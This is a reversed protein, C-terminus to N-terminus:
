APVLGEPEQYMVALGEAVMASQILPKADAVKKGAHEGVILKGDYFGVKYVEEQVCMILPATSILAYRAKAEALAISDNQSKIKYKDCAFIASLNGMGPAEIIPVPEVAVMADTINYLDRLPQFLILPARSINTQLM